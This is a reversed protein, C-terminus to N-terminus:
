DDKVLLFVTENTLIMHGNSPWLDLLETSLFLYVVVDMTQVTRCSFRSFFTSFGAFRNRKKM